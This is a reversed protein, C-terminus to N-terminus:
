QGQRTRTGKGQTWNDSPQYLDDLNRVAKDGPRSGAKGCEACVTYSEGSETRTVYDHRGIWCMMRM